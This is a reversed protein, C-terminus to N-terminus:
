NPCGTCWTDSESVIDVNMLDMGGNTCTWCGKPNIIVSCSGKSITLTPNGWVDVGEIRTAANCGKTGDFAGRNCKIAYHCTFSQSDKEFYDWPPMTGDVNVRLVMTNTWKRGNGCINAPSAANGHVCGRWDCTNDAVPHYISWCTEFDPYQICEGCPLAIGPVELGITTQMEYSSLSSDSAQHRHEVILPITSVAFLCACISVKFM